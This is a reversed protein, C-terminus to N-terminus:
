QPRLDHALAVAPAGGAHCGARSHAWLAMRPRRRGRKQIHGGCVRVVSERSPVEERLRRLGTEDRLVKRAVLAQHNLRSLLLLGLCVFALLPLVVRVGVVRLSKGGRRTLNLRETKLRAM